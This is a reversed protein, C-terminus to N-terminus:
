HHEINMDLRDTLDRVGLPVNVRRGDSLGLEVRGGGRGEIWVVQRPSILITRDGDQPIEILKAM